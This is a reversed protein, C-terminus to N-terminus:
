SGLGQLAARARPAEPGNLALVTEFHARAEAPRDERVAQEGALFRVASRFAAPTDPLQPHSLLGDLLQRGRAGRHFMSPLALFTNAAVLRTELGTPAEGPASRDAAAPLLALAKDILALGDEAYGIKRWPLLTATARRAVAAGAYALVLPDEPHRQTLAMLRQAHRELTDADRSTAQRQM